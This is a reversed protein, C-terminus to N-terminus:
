CIVLVYIPKLWIHDYQIFMPYLLLFVSTLNCTGQSFKWCHHSLGEPIHVWVWDHSRVTTLSSHNLNKFVYDKLNNRLGPPSVRLWMLLFLSFQLFYCDFKKWLHNWWSSEAYVWYYKNIVYQFSCMCCFVRSYIKVFWSM